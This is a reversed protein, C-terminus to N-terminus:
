NWFVVNENFFIFKDNETGQLWQGWDTEVEIERRCVLERVDTDGSDSPVIKYGCILCLLM